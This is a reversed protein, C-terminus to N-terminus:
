TLCHRLHLDISIVKRVLTQFCSSLLCLKQKYINAEDKSVLWQIPSSSFFPHPSSEGESVRQKDTCHSREIEQLDNRRRMSDEHLEGYRHQLQEYDSSIAALQNEVRRFHEDNRAVEENSYRHQQEYVHMHEELQHCRTTAVTLEEAKEKLRQQVTQHHINLQLMQDHAISLAHTAKEYDIQLNSLVDNLRDIENQQDQSCRTQEDLATNM